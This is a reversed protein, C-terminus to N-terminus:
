LCQLSPNCNYISHLRSHRSAGTMDLLTYRYIGNDQMYTCKITCVYEHIKCLIHRYRSFPLGGIYTFISLVIMIQCTTYLIHSFYSHLHWQTSYHGRMNGEIHAFWHGIINESRQTQLEWFFPFAIGSKCYKHEFSNPCTNWIEICLVTFEAFTNTHM